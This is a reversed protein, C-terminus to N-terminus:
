ALHTPNGQYLGAAKRRLHEARLNAPQPRLPPIANVTDAGHNSTRPAFTHDVNPLAFKYELPENPEIAEPHSFSTRYRGRFIDIALPLEYGSM